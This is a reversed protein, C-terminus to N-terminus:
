HPGNTREGTDPAPSADLDRAAIEAQIDEPDLSGLGLGEVRRWKRMMSKEKYRDLADAIEDPNLEEIAAAITYSPEGFAESLAFIAEDSVHTTEEVAILCEDFESVLANIQCRVQVRLFQAAVKAEVAFFERSASLRSESFFNHAIQELEVCDPTHFDDEVVFPTPVGTQWLENVRQEVSRTTRGIKVLGPMSPNSLVYVYGRSM